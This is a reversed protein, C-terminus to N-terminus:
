LKLSLVEGDRVVLSANNETSRELDFGPRVLGESHMTVVDCPRVLTSSCACGLGCDVTLVFGFNCSFAFWFADYVVDL